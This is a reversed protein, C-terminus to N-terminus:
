VPRKVRAKKPMETFNDQASPGTTHPPLMTLIEQRTKGEKEALLWLGDVLIDNLTKRDEGRNERVLKIWNLAAREEITLSLSTPRAGKPIHQPRPSMHRYKWKVVKGYQRMIANDYSLATQRGVM